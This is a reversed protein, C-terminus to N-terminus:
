TNNELQKTYNGGVYDFGMRQYLAGTRGDKDMGSTVGLHFSSVPFRSLWREARKLMFPAKHKYSPHTFFVADYATYQSSFWCETIVVVLM